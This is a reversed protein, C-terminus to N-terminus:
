SVLRLVQRYSKRHTANAMIIGFILYRLLSGALFIVKVLSLQGKPKHKQWFYLMGEVELTIALHSGGSAGGLHILNTQPDLIVKKGLKKIRYCLELEEVYMFIKEDFGGVLRFLKSPIIMFAGTVWDPNSESFHPHISKFLKVILPLDDLFFQWAFLNKLDPFFGGSSQHTGDQNVLNCSYVGVDENERMQQICYPLNNETLLTDSNLFLLYEGRAERAGLNNGVGFGRNEKSRILKFNKHESELKSLMEVSGDSSANDIVIVELDLGSTFQYVSNICALTIDKTNYNVIIVTLDVRM